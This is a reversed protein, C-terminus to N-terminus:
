AEARVAWAAERESFRPNRMANRLPATMPSMTTPNPNSSMDKHNRMRSWKMSASDEVALSVMMVVVISVNPM